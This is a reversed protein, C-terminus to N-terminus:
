LSVGVNGKLAQGIRIISLRFFLKLRQYKQNVMPRYKFTLLNSSGLADDMVLVTNMRKDIVLAFLQHLLFLALRTNYGGYGRVVVDAKRSYTDALAAGWGGSRFSQETISDGFLLIQPRM